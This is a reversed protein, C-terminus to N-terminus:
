SESRLRKAPLDGRLFFEPPKRDLEAVELGNTPGARGVLQTLGADGSVGYLAKKSARTDCGAV